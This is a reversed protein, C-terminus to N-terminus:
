TFPGRNALDFAIELLRHESRITKLAAERTMEFEHEIWPAIREALKEPADLESPEILSAAIKCKLAIKEIGDARELRLTLVISDSSREVPAANEIEYIGRATKIQISM